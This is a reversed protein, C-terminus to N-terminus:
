WYLTRSQGYKTRIIVLVTNEGVLWIQDQNNGSCNTNESDIFM